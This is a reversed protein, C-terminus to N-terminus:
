KRWHGLEAKAAHRYRAQIIPDPYTEARLYCYGLMRWAFFRELRNYRAEVAPMKLAKFFAGKEAVSLPNRRSLIQFAPSLHSYIDECLDGAAPCQWDILRLASGSGILNNAGIDTHILSLKNLPEIEVPHPRTPLKSNQCRQFLQDGQRLIDAPKTPVKRFGTPDAAEKRKLLAVVATIDGDWEEGEVFEYLLIRENPWFGILVPAVELGVLRELAAAEDKPLNPFLSGPMPEKFQKLIIDQKNTKVRFVDNTYGGKLREISFPGDGLGARKLFATIEDNTPKINNMKHIM